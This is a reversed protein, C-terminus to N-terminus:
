QTISPRFRFQDISPEPVSLNRGYRNKLVRGQEDIIVDAIYALQVLRTKMRGANAASTEEETLNLVVAERLREIDAPSLGKLRDPHIAM